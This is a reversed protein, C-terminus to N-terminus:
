NKNELASNIINWLREALKKTDDDGRSGADIAPHVTLKVSAPTILGGHEERLKYTGDITIPVISAKSRIALKLSGSKFPKMKDSRSRTGEPFIVMPYGQKINEVGQKIVGISERLSSRNIFICGVEKMWTGLIPLYRLEKKAIFGVTKSIYGIILPIDLGGQHNSVFCISNHNPINELGTVTVKGGAARVINRGWTGTLYSIYSRRIKKLKFIRMFLLPIYFSLSVIMYLWFFTYWFITRIM